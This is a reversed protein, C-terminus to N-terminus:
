YKDSDVVQGTAFAADGFAWFGHDILWAIKLAWGTFYEESNRGNAKAHRLNNLVEKETATLSSFRRLVPTVDEADFPGSFRGGDGGFYRVIFEQGDFVTLLEGKVKVGNVPVLVTAGIYLKKYKNINM